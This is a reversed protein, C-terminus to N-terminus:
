SSGMDSSTEDPKRTFTDAVVDYLVKGLAGYRLHRFMSSSYRVPHSLIVRVNRTSEQAQLRNAMRRVWGHCGDPLGFKRACTVVITHYDARTVFVDVSARCARLLQEDDEWVAPDTLYMGDKIHVRIEELNKFCSPDPLCNQRGEVFLLRINACLPKALKIRLTHPNRPRFVPGPYAVTLTSDTLSALLPLLKSRLIKCSRLLSLDRKSFSSKLLLSSVDTQSIM